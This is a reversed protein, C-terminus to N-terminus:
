SPVVEGQRLYLAESVEDLGPVLLGGLDALTWAVRLIRDYGRLSLSGRELARDAGATARRAPRLAGRLVSGPLHANLRVDFQRLRDLQTFRAVVVRDAVVQSSEAGAPSTTAKVTEVRVQLDVRDLIPGSLKALYQRRRIPACRCNEGRGSFYGCPCPNAALVLQFRAPYRVHAYARALVVEGLELPQRLAELVQRGFEPAEDLFLVGRHARSMAGPLAVRAGGGVVAACSATHHPAEFPPRRTLGARADFHGAVSHVASVEVSEEDTLDPLLGPLRSALMTKGAGPPGVLFLHHGGAAAVELARRAEDQGVVDALDAHVRAQAMPSPAASVAEVPDIPGLDGGHLAVVDALTAAARVRAGHVLEAETVNATPVVVHSFGAAVAASVAPLVGNVPRLRGDLGLEGVHVTKAAADTPFVGLAALCAVAISVDFGSGQKPLSAPTLNVTLKRQSLDAGVNTCAALVRSRAERLAGDVTGVVNFGPLGSSLHAEVEVLVAHLGLLSMSLARGVSM